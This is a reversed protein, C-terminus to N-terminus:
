LLRPAEGFCAGHAVTGFTILSIDANPFQARIDRAALWSLAAGLSHGTIIVKQRTNLNLAALKEMLGPRAQVTIPVARGPYKRRVGRLIRRAASDTPLLQKHPPAPPVCRITSRLSALTFM